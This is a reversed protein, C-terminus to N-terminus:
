RKNNIEKLVSLKNYIYKIWTKVNVIEKLNIKLNSKKVIKLSQIFTTIGYQISEMLFYNASFKYSIEEKNLRHSLRAYVQLRNLFAKKSKKSTLSGPRRYVKYIVEPCVRVNNLKFSNLVNFKVDNYHQTEEFKIGTRKIADLKYVKAWPVTHSAKLDSLAKNDRAKLYNMCLSNYRNARVSPTKDSEQIAKALFYCLEDNDLLEKDLTNFANSTFEDDSDAFLLFTGAAAGLGINRAKGAGGNTGTTLWTVAEFDTKLKDLAAKDSSCDDIVIVQMDHRHLPISDLLRRLRCFDDYHPVIVTYKYLM